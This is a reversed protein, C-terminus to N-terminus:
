RKEIKKQYCNGDDTNGAKSSDVYDAFPISHIMTGANAPLERSNIDVPVEQAELSVPVVILAILTFFLSKNTIHMRRYENSENNRSFYGM